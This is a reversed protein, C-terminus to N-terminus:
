KGGTKRSGHTGSVNSRAEEAEIRRPSNKRNSSRNSVFQDGSSIINTSRNQNGNVVKQPSPVFNNNGMPLNSQFTPNVYGRNRNGDDYQAGHQSIVTNRQPPSSQRNM